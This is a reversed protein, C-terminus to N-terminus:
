PSAQENVTGVAGSAVAGSAVAGSAVAGGAVDGAVGSTSPLITKIQPAVIKSITLDLSPSYKKNYVDYQSQSVKPRDFLLQQYVDKQARIFTTANERQDPKLTMQTVLTGNFKNLRDTYSTLTMISGTYDIRTQYTSIGTLVTNVVAIGITIIESMQGTRDGASVLIYSILTVIMNLIQTTDQLKKLNKAYDEQVNKHVYILNSVTLLWNIVTDENSRDWGNLDAM